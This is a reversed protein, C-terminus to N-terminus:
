SLTIDGSIIRHIVGQDDKLILAGDGDIDLAKGIFQNGIVRVEVKKGVINSLDKWRNIIPGFGTKKYM